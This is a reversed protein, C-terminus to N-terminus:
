CVSNCNNSGEATDGPTSAVPLPKGMVWIKRAQEGGICDLSMVLTTYDGTQFVENEVLLLCIAVREGICSRLDFGNRRIHVVLCHM